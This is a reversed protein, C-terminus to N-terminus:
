RGKRATLMGGEWYGGGWELTFPGTQGRKQWNMGRKNHTRRGDLDAKVTKLWEGKRL